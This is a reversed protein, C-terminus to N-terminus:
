HRIREYVQSSGDKNLLLVDYDDTRDGMEMGPSGIPMGPVALGLAGVPKERMFRQMVDAPVHGEFIYGEKTVATHCSQYQPAISYKQKVTALNVPHHVTGKFGNKDIYNIWRGCCECSPNKYVDLKVFGTTKSVSVMEDTCALLGLLIILLFYQGLKNTVNRM